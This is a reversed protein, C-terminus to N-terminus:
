RKPRVTINVPGSTTVAGATDTARASLAHGGSPVNRWSYSYPATTDQGLVTAGDRFEVKTVAGDSDSATATLTITPKWAFTAGELPGPARVGPEAKAPRYSEEVIARKKMMAAHDRADGRAGPPSQM